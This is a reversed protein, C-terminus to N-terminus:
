LDYEIETPPPYPEEHQRVQDTLRRIHGIAIPYKKELAALKVDMQELRKDREELRDETWERTEAMLAKWHSTNNSEEGTKRAFRAGLVTAAGAIFPASIGGITAAIHVWSM